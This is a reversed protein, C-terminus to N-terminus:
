NSKECVFNLQAECDKYRTVYNSALKALNVCISQGMWYNKNALKESIGILEKGNQLVVLSGGMARCKNSADRWNVKEKSEIYYYKSGIKEFKTLDAPKEAALTRQLADLKGDLRHDETHPKSSSQQVDLITILLGVLILKM